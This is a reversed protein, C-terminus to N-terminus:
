EKKYFIDPNVKLKLDFNIKTGGEANDLSLKSVDAEETLKDEKFTKIQETAIYYLKDATGSLGYNGNLGGSFKDFYVEKLTNKELYAFFQSWYIHKDIVKELAEIKNQFLLGKEIYNEEDAILEETKQIDEDYIGVEKEKEKELFTLYAFAGSILILFILFYSVFISLNSKWDIFTAVDDNNILNTKIDLSYNNGNGSLGLRQKLLELKGLHSERQKNESNLVEDYKAIVEKNKIAGKKTITGKKELNNDEGQKEFM